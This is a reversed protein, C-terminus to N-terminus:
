NALECAHFCAIYRVQWMDESDQKTEAKLYIWVHGKGYRLKSHKKMFNNEDSNMMTIAEKVPASPNRGLLKCWDNWFNLEFGVNFGAHTEKGGERKDIKM